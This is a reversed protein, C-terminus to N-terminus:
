RFDEDSKVLGLLARLRWVRDESWVRMPNTTRPLPMETVMLREVRDPMWTTEGGAVAGYSQVM